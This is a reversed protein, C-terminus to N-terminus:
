WVRKVLMMECVVRDCMKMFKYPNRIKPLLMSGINFNFSMESAAYQISAPIKAFINKTLIWRLPDQIPRDPTVSDNSANSAM